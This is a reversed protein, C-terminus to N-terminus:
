AATARKLKDIYRSSQSAAALTEMQHAHLKMATTDSFLRDCCPTSSTPSANTSDDIATAPSAAAAAGAAAAAASQTM